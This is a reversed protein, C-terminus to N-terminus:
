GSSITGEPVLKVFNVKNVTLIIHFCQLQRNMVSKISIKVPYGGFAERFLQNAEIQYVSHIVINNGEVNASPFNLSLHM